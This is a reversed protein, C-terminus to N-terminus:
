LGVLTFLCIVLNAGPGAIAVLIGDKGPNKFNQPTVPVPKAWGIFFAGPNFLGYLPLLVTGILDSHAIPNLTLRGKLKATPDGLNFAAWAHGFEHFSLSCVLIVWKMLVLAIDHPDLSM